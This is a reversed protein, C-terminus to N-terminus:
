FPSELFILSYPLLVPFPFLIDFAMNDLFNSSCAILIQDKQLVQPVLTSCLTWVRSLEEQSAKGLVMLTELLKKLALSLSLPSRYWLSGVLLYYWGSSTPFQGSLNLPLSAHLLCQGYKSCHYWIPFSMLRMLYPKLYGPSTLISFARKVFKNAFLNLPNKIQPLQGEFIFLLPNRCTM